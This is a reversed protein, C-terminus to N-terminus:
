KILAELLSSTDVIFSRRKSSIFSAFSVFKNWTCALIASIPLISPPHSFDTCLWYARLVGRWGKNANHNHANSQNVNVRDDNRNGNLANGAKQCPKETGCDHDCGHHLCQSAKKVWKAHSYARSLGLPENAEQHEKLSRKSNLAKPHFVM